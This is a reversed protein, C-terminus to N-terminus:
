RCSWTEQHKWDRFVQTKLTSNKLGRYKQVNGMHKELMTKTKTDAIAQLEKQIRLIIKTVIDKAGRTVSNM